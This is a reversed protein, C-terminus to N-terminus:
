AQDSTDPVPLDEANVFHSVVTSESIIPESELVRQLSGLTEKYDGSRMYNGANEKSNWLTLIVYEVRKQGDNELIYVRRVGDQIKLKPLLRSHIEDLVTKSGSDGSRPHLVLRTAYHTDKSMVDNEKRRQKKM